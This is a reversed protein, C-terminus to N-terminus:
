GGATVVLGDAVPGAQWPLGMSAKKSDASAVGYLPLCMEVESIVLLM